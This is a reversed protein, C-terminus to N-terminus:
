VAIDTKWGAASLVALVDSVRSITHGAHPNIILSTKKRRSLSVESYEVASKDVLLGQLEQKHDLTNKTRGGDNEKPTPSLAPELTPYRLPSQEITPEPAGHTLTPHTSPNSQDHIGSQKMSVSASDEVPVPLHRMQALFTTTLWNLRHLTHHSPTAIM